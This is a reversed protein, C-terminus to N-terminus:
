DNHGAETATMGSGVQDFNRAVFVFETEPPIITYECHEGAEWRGEGKEGGSNGHRVPRLEVGIVAAISEPAMRRLSVTGAVAYAICNLGWPTSSQTVFLLAGGAAGAGDFRLDVKATSPSAPLFLTVTRSTGSDTINSMYTFTTAELLLGRGPKVSRGGFFFNYPAPDNPVTKLPLRGEIIAALLERHYDLTTLAAGSVFYANDERILEHGASARQHDYLLYLGYFLAAPFILAIAVLLSRLAGRPRPLERPM